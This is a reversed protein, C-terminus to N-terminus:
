KLRRATRYPYRETLSSDRLETIQLVPVRHATAHIMAGNGLCLGLHTITQSDLGFFILDGAKIEKLTIDVFNDDLVQEKADRPLMVGIQRFLMQSFGSCDFGFSSTGGWTYPLGIFQTSLQVMEKLSLQFHGLRVNARAIWANSGDVLRIELWRFDEDDPQSIVEFSTEFPLTLLPKQKKVSPESYVHVANHIVSAFIPNESFRSAEGEFLWSKEVWGEYLDPAAIKAFNGSEELIPVRSGYIIQSVVPSRNDSKEYLNLVPINVFHYM